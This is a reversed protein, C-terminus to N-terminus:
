VYLVRKEKSKIVLIGIAQLIALKEKCKNTLKKFSVEVEKM